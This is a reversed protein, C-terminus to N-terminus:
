RILLQGTEDRYFTYIIALYPDEKRNAENAIEVSSSLGSSLNHKEQFLDINAFYFIPPSIVLFSNYM